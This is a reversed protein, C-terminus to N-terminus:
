LEIDFGLKKNKEVFLRLEEVYKQKASLLEQILDKMGLKALDDFVTKKKKRALKIMAKSDKSHNFLSHEWLFLTKINSLISKESLMLSQVEDRGQEKEFKYGKECIPCMVFFRWASKNVGFKPSAQFILVKNVHIMASVKFDEDKQNCNPCKQLGLDTLDVSGIEEWDIGSVHVVM